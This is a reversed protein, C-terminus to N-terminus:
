LFLMSYKLVGEAVVHEARVLQLLNTNTIPRKTELNRSSLVAISVKEFGANKRAILRHNGDVIMWRETNLDLSTPDCKM